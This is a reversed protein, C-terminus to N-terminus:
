KVEIVEFQTHGTTNPIGLMTFLQALLIIYATASTYASVITDSLYNVFFSAFHTLSFLIKFFIFQDNM